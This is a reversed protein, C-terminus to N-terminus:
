CSKGAIDELLLDLSRGNILINSAPLVSFKTSPGFPGKRISLYWVGGSKEATLASIPWEGEGTDLSRAIVQILLRNVWSDPKLSFSSAADKMRPEM